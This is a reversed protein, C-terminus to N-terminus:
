HGKYFNVLWVLNSKQDSLSLLTADLQPRVASNTRYEERINDLTSVTAAFELRATRVHNSRELLQPTVTATSLYNTWGVYSAFAVDVSAQETRFLNTQFDACGILLALAILPILKKMLNM